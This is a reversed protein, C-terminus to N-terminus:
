SPTRWGISPRANGSTPSRLRCSPATPMKQSTALGHLTVIQPVRPESGAGPDRSSASRRCCSSRRPAATAVAGHTTSSAPCRADPAQARRDPGLHRRTSRSSVCRCRSWMSRGRTRRAATRARARPGCRPGPRSSARGARAASGSGTAAQDEGHPQAIKGALELEVVHHADRATELDALELDAGRLDTVRSRRDAAADAFPPPTARRGAPGRARAPSSRSGAALRLPRRAELEGGVGAQRM